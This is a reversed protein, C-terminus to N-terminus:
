ARVGRSNAVVGRSRRRGQTDFTHGLARRLVRQLRHMAVLSSLGGEAPCLGRIRSALLRNQSPTLSAPLDFARGSDIVVANTSLHLQALGVPQGHCLWICDSQSLPQAFSGSSQCHVSVTMGVKRLEMELGASLHLHSPDSLIAARRGQPNWGFAAALQLFGTMQPSFGERTADLDLARLDPHFDLSSRHSPTLVTPFVVGHVGRSKELLRFRDRLANGPLTMEVAEVSVLFGLETAAARLPGAVPSEMYDFIVLRPRIGSRRAEANLESLRALVAERITEALWVRTDFNRTAIAVDVSVVRPSVRGTKFFNKKQSSKKKHHIFNKRFEPTSAGFTGPPLYAVTGGFFVVAFVVLFTAALVAFAEPLAVALGAAVALTLGATAAVFFAAVEFIAVAFAADRFFPVGTM